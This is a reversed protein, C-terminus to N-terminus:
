FAMNKSSKTMRKRLCDYMAFIVYNVKITFSQENRGLVFGGTTIFRNTSYKLGVNVAYQTGMTNNRFVEEPNTKRNFENKYMQVGIYPALNKALYAHHFGFPTIEVGLSKTKMTADGYHGAGISANVSFFYHTNSLEIGNTSISGIRSSLTQNRLIGGGLIQAKTSMLSLLCIALFINRM